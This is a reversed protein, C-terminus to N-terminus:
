YVPIVSVIKIHAAVPRVSLVYPTVVAGPADAGVTRAALGPHVPPTRATSRLSTGAADEGDGPPTYRRRGRRRKEWRSAAGVKQQLPTEGNRHTPAM